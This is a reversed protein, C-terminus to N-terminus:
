WYNKTLVVKRFDMTKMQKSKSQSPNLPSPSNLPHTSQLISIIAHKAVFPGDPDRPDYKWFYIGIYTKWRPHSTYKRPGWIAGTRSIITIITTLYSGFITYCLRLDLIPFYSALSRTETNTLSTVFLYVSVSDFLLGQDTELYVSDTLLARFFM